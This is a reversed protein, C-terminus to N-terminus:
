TSIYGPRYCDLQYQWKSNIGSGPIQLLLLLLVSGIFSLRALFYWVRLPTRSALFGLPIACLLFLLQRIVIAFSSGNIELSHISSASLVMVLGLGSLAATCVLVLYYSSSPQSLFGRNKM